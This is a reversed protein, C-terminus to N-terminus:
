RVAARLSLGSFTFPGYSEEYGSSRRGEDSVGSGPVGM